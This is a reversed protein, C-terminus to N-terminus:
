APLAGACTRPELLSGVPWRWAMAGGRSVIGLQAVRAEALSKQVLPLSAEAFRRTANLVDNVDLRLATALPGAVDRVCDPARPAIAVMRQLPVHVSRGPLCRRMWVDLGINVDRVFTGYFHSSRALEAHERRRRTESEALLTEGEKEGLIGFRMAEHVRSSFHKSTAVMIDLDRVTNVYVLCPFLTARLVNVYYTSHPNKMGWRLPQRFQPRVAQQLLRLAAAKSGGCLETNSRNASQSIADRDVDDCHAHDARSFNARLWSFGDGGRFSNILGCDAAANCPLECVAPDTLTPQSVCAMQVGLSELLLAVGRTGSGGSGGVIVPAAHWPADDCSSHHPAHMMGIPCTVLEVFITCARETERMAVCLRARARPLHLCAIGVRPIYISVAPARLSCNCNAVTEPRGRVSVIHLLIRSCPLRAPAAASEGCM